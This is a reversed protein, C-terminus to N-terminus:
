LWLICHNQLGLSIGWNIGRKLHRLPWFLSFAASTLNYILIVFHINSKVVLLSNIVLTLATESCHHYLVGNPLSLWRSFSCRSYHPQPKSLLPMKNPHFVSTYTGRPWHQYLLVPDSTPPLSPLWQPPSLTRLLVPPLFLRWQPLRSKGNNRSSFPFYSNKQPLFNLSKKSIDETKGHLSLWTKVFLSPPPKSTPSLLKWFQM